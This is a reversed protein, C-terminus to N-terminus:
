APIEPLQPLSDYYGCGYAYNYGSYGRGSYSRDYGEGGYSGDDAM